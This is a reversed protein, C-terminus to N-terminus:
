RRHKGKNRRTVGRTVRGQRGYDPTQTQINFRHRDNQWKTKAERAVGAVVSPTTQKFQDFCLLKAENYFLPYMDADVDPIFDNDFRNFPPRVTAWATTKSEQLTTDVASDFADFIIHEDDFSTWFSPPRENRIPLLVGSFDQVLLITSDDTNRSMVSELFYEPDQYEITRHASRTEGQRRIDYKLWTLEDVKDPLRMYNPRDPDSLPELQILENHEPIVDTGTLNRFTQEIVLAVQESEVTDGIANVEDSDMDSLIDQVMQLMTKKAM